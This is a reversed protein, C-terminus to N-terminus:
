HLENVTKHDVGALRCTVENVNGDAVDQQSLTHETDLDLDHKLGIRAALVTGLLGKRIDDVNKHAVKKKLPKKQNFVTNTFNPSQICKYTPTYQSVNM